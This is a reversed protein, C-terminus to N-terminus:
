KKTTKAPAKTKAAAPAEKKTDKEGTKVAGTTVEPKPEEAPTELSERSIIQVKKKVTRAHNNAHKRDIFPQGNVIYIMQIGPYADFVDQYNKM